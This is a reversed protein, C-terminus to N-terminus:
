KCMRFCSYHELLIQNIWLVIGLCRIIITVNHVSLISPYSRSHCIGNEESWLGYPCDWWNNVYVFRSSVTLSFIIDNCNRRIEPSAAKLSGQCRITMCLCAVWFGHVHKTLGFNRGTSKCRSWFHHLCTTMTFISEVTDLLRPTSPHSNPVSVAPFFGASFRRVPVHRVALFRWM